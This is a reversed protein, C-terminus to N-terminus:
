IFAEPYNNTNLIYPFSTINLAQIISIRSNCLATTDFMCDRCNVPFVCTGELIWAYDSYVHTPDKVITVTM